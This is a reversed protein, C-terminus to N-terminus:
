TRLSLLNGTHNRKEEATLRFEDKTSFASDQNDPIIYKLVKPRDRVEGEQGFDNLLYHSQLKNVVNVVITQTFDKLRGVTSVVTGFRSKESDVIVNSHGNVIM